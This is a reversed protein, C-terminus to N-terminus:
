SSVEIGAARCWSYLARYASRALLEPAESLAQALSVPSEQISFVGAFGVDLLTEHGPGLAGAFALVPVDHRRAVQLVGMPTKGHLTQADIRGEGTMVLDAGDLQEDLGIQESIREIGACFHAGLLQLMMGVGGAAGTGPQERMVQGFASELCDAARATQEDLEDLAIPVVAGTLKQAAFVHAAGRPGCLPNDVDCAVDIRVDSLRSDLGSLDVSALSAMGAAGLGIDAGSADLCRGGLAQLLGLGLDHTASGGIGILLCRCGDDLAARIQEGVGYSTTVRVDRQADPVQQLGAAQAMEIVATGEPLRAWDASQAYGLPGTVSHHMRTGSCAALLADVTGEGGDALPLTVVTADPLVRLIGTRLSKAVALASLCDKFSDPAVVIRM